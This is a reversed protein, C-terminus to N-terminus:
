AGSWARALLEQEAEGRVGVRVHEPLGFSSCDRVRCGASQICRGFTKADGVRYLLFPGGEADLAAGLRALRQKLARRLRALERRLSPVAGWEDLAALGAAIAPASVNWPPLAAQVARAAAASALLCGLRLGPRAFVKTFSRLAVVNERRGIPAVDELTPLYAEDIVWLTSP